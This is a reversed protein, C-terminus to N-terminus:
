DQDTEDTLFEAEAWRDREMNNELVPDPVGVPLEAEESEYLEQV